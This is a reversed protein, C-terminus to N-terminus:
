EISKFGYKGFVKMAEPGALYSLFEEAAARHKTNAIIAGPFVIPEHFNMPAAAVVKIKNSTAAVTSFVIGAEANGTEVYSLIARVDKAMVAKPKVKDWIGLRELVERGYQGAPVTEPEGLGFHAVEPKILDNFDNVEKSSNQPVILVLENSVLKKRTDEAILGKKALDDVQKNAASIFVDVQAGQEIQSQLVGAAALNYIIKVNPHTKEYEPQIDLLAEKLGLAASVNLEINADSQIGVISTPKNNMCAGSLLLIVASFLCLIAKRM